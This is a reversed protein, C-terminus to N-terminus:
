RDNEQVRPNEYKQKQEKRKTKLLKTAEQNLEVKIPAGLYTVTQKKRAMLCEMKTSKGVSFCVQGLYNHYVNVWVKFTKEM